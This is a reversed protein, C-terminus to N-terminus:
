ALCVFLSCVVAFWDGHPSLRINCVHTSVDVGGNKALLENSLPSSQITRILVGVSSTHRCNLDFRRNGPDAMIDYQPPLNAATVTGNRRRSSAHVLQNLRQRKGATNQAGGGLHAVRISVEVFQEEGNVDLNFADCM